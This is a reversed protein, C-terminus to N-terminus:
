NIKASDMSERVFRLRFPDLCDSSCILYVQSKKTKKDLQTQRTHRRHVRSSPGHRKSHGSSRYSSKEAISKDAPASRHNQDHKLPSSSSRNGM